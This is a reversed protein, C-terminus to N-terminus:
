IKELLQEFSKIRFDTLIRKNSVSLSRYRRLLIKKAEKETINESKTIKLLTQILITRKWEKENQFDYLNNIVRFVGFFFIVIFSGWGGIFTGFVSSIIPIELLLIIFMNVAGIFELDASNLLFTHTCVSVLVMFGVHYLFMGVLGYIQNKMSNGQSFTYQSIHDKRGRLYQMASAYPHDIDYPINDLSKKACLISFILFVTTFLLFVLPTEPFLPWYIAIKTHFDASVRYWVILKRNDLLGGLLIIFSFLFYPVVLFLVTKKWVKTVFWKYFMKAFFVKEPHVSEKETFM